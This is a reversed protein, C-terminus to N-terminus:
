VPKRLFVDCGYDNAFGETEEEVKATVVIVKAWLSGEIHLEKEFNRIEKLVTLGDVKPLM